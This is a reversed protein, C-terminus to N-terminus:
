SSSFSCVFFYKYLHLADSLITSLMIKTKGDLYTLESDILGDGIKPKPRTYFMCKNQRMYFVSNIVDKDYVSPSEYFNSFITRYNTVSEDSTDFGFFSLVHRHTVYIPFLTHPNFLESRYISTGAESLGYENEYRLMRLVLEKDKAHDATFGGIPLPIKGM